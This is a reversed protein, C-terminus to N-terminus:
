AELVRAEAVAQVYLTRVMRTLDELTAVTWRNWGQADAEAKIAAYDDRLADLSDAFALKGADTLAEFACAVGADALPFAPVQLM